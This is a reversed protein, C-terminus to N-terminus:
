ILILCHLYFFHGIYIVDSTNAYLLNHQSREVFSCGVMLKDFFKFSILTICSIFLLVILLYMCIQSQKQDKM